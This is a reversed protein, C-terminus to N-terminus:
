SRADDLTLALLSVPHGRGRVRIPAVPAAGLGAPLKGAAEVLETSVLMPAELEHSLAEIREATNVTDGIVTYELRREDGIAGAMVEGYHAGIGATVVPLGANRREEAWDRLACMLERGCKLAALADNEGPEPVGFEVMIADGIFKDITAGADIIVQGLRGRFQGLIEAIEAPPMRESLATFGRIDIFMVVAKQHRTQEALHIGSDAMERVLPAPLYKALNVKSRAEIAARMLLRRTRMASVALIAAVLFTIALRAYEVGLPLPLPRDLPGENAGVLLVLALWGVAYLAMTYLLLLPQYRLAAHALFVFILAMGPVRLADSLGVGYLQILGLPLSLLILVDATSYAWPLWARYIGATALTFNLAGVMGYAGLVFVPITTWPFSHRVAEFTIVLIALGLLQVYASLRENRRAAERMVRNVHSRM